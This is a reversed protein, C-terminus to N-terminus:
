VALDPFRAPDLAAAQLAERHDWYDEQRIIRGGKLDVVNALPTEVEVGSVPGRARLTGLAVVRDGPELILVDTLEARVDDWPARFNAIYARIEDHGKYSGGKPGDPIRLEPPMETTYVAEPDYALLLLDLDGRSYAAWGIMSARVIMSQRLDSGSPLRNITALIGELLGPVGSLLREQLNRADRMEARPVRVHTASGEVPGLTVLSRRRQAGFLIM